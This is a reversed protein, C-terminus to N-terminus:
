NIFNNKIYQLSILITCIVIIAFIFKLEFKFNEITIYNRREERPLTKQREHEEIMRKRSELDYGIKFAPYTFILAACLTAILGFIDRENAFIYTLFGFLGVLMFPLTRYFIEVLINKIRKFPKEKQAVSQSLPNKVKQTNEDKLEIM